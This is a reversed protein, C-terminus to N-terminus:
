LTFYFTAGQDVEAEAWIQGGHRHIIRQVSALGVGTGPFETAAHLRQFPSFLKDAYEMDFGAGNDRIFYVRQGDQEDIGFEIRANTREGTFKWANGLLNGLAVRLLGLDGAVVMGERIILEFRREPEGKELEAVIDQALESLDLNERHMEARAVQSLGLLDDILEAMKNTASRVRRLHDKGEDDVQEAHDELLVQSFGDIARLPARLDHSVSYSFAELERNAAELQATREIVRQELEENLVRIEKEARKRETIDQVLSEAMRNFAQALAGIENRTRIDIRHELDGKGIKDASAVLENLPGTISRTTFFSIYFALAMFVIISVLAISNARQQVRDIRQQITESLKFAESAMRQSKILTQAALREESALTLDIEAQSGNEEILRTRNDLNALLLSFFNGFSDHDSAIAELRAIDEAHTEEATMDELLNSLTEYKLLWQQEMREEHHSLYEFTVINLEFIDRIIQTAEEGDKVDTNILESTQFMVFGLVVILVVFVASLLFLRTSVKM